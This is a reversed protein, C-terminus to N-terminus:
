RMSRDAHPEPDRFPHRANSVGADAARIRTCPAADPAATPDIRALAAAVYPNVHLNGVLQALEAVTVDESVSDFVQVDVYLVGEVGQMIAIAESLFAPQGLDRADFAFGALVAARINPAVAEWLYDPQLQVNASIVLLRVKRISVQVPLFPDGFQQLALLFNQYLDSTQDIPIDGAGAITLHVLQRRGDSLHVAAAKGIGAYTRAFDAYDQISVLRDLAMVALPANRRAQDLSDRDAGGTAPLPNVVGQLGLPHTALQSIQGAAVNGPSGIGYRYTAKVNSSGTPVRAGYDGNGFIITTQDSDDTTTVYDRDTPGLGALSDTEHREIDNVRVTLTSQAGEPTAAPLYTLPKQHLTFQQFAQSGDGNGLIEGTTQGHTAKAVNAYISIASSDYKYALPNALQITTHVTESGTTLSWIRWAFIDSRSLPIIGGPFPLDTSPDILLGQFASFNGLKEAATPVYANAFLGPCLEVAECYEQNVTQPNPLQNM